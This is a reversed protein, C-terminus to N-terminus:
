VPAHQKMSRAEMGIEIQWRFSGDQGKEKNSRSGQIRPGKPKQPQAIHWIGM